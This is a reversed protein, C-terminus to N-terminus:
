KSFNSLCFCHQRSEMGLCETQMGTCFPGPLMWPNEPSESISGSNYLVQFVFCFHKSLNLKTPVVTMTWEDPLCGLVKTRSVSPDQLWEQSKEAVAEPWTKTLILQRPECGWICVGGRRWSSAPNGSVQRHFLRITKGKSFM